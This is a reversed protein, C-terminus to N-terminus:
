SVSLCQVEMDQLSGWQIIEDQLADTGRGVLEGLIRDNILGVFAKLGQAAEHTKGFTGRM